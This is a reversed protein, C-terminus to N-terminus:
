NASAQFRLGTKRRRLVTLADDDLESLPQDAVRVDGTTPQVLGGILRLLTPKGSGSPGMISVFRGRPVSLEIDHLIRVIPETQGLTRGM